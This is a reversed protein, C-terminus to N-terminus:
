LHKVNIECHASFIQSSDVHWETSVQSTFMDSSPWADKLGWKERRFQFQEQGADNLTGSM